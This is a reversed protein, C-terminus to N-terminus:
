TILYVHFGVKFKELNKKMQRFCSDDTTRPPRVERLSKYNRNLKGEVKKGRLKCIQIYNINNLPLHIFIFDPFDEHRATM